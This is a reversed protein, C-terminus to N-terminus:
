ESIWTGSDDDASNGDGQDGSDDAAPSTTDIVAEDTGGAGSDIVEENGQSAGLDEESDIVAGDDAGEDGGTDIVAADDGGEEGGSDIVATDDAGEEGGSDIVAADDGGEEGGTDIVTGDAAGPKGAENEMAAPPKVADPSRGQSSAKQRVVAPGNVTALMAGVLKLSVAFTDDTTLGLIRKGFSDGTRTASAQWIVMGSGADLLRFTLALEPYAGGERQVLDYHDVTGFFFAQVGLRQGLRQLLAEDMPAKKMDVAEDRLASDVLGKDVVDFLGAALIQTSVIDRVREAVYPDKSNNEFPLVAVREVYGLDVDGRVYSQIPGTGACSVMILLSTLVILYSLKRM